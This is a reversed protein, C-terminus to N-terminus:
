IELMEPHGEPLWRESRTIGGCSVRVTATRRETAIRAAPPAEGDLEGTGPFKVARSATLGVSKPEGRKAGATVLRLIQASEELSAAAEKKAIVLGGASLFTLKGSITDRRALPVAGLQESAALGSARALKLRASSHASGAYGSGLHMRPSQLEREHLREMLGPYSRGGFVVARSSHDRHNATASADPAARRAGRVMPRANLIERRPEESDATVRTGLTSIYAGTDAGAAALGAM